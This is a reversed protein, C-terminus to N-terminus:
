QLTNYSNVFGLLFIFTYLKSTNNKEVNKKDLKITIRLRESCLAYTQLHRNKSNKRSQVSLAIAHVCHEKRTTRDTLGEVSKPLVLSFFNDKKKRERKELQDSLGRSSELRLGKLSM